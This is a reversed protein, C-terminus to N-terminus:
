LPSSEMLLNMCCISKSTCYQWFIILVLNLFCRFMVLVPPVLTHSVATSHWIQPCFHPLLSIRTQSWHWIVPCYLPDACWSRLRLNLFFGFSNLIGRIKWLGCPYSEWKMICSIPVMPFSCSKSIFQMGLLISFYMAKMNPFCRKNRSLKWNMSLHSSIKRRVSEFIYM